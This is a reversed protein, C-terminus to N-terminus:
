NWCEKAENKMGWFGKYLIEEITSSMTHTENTERIRESQKERLIKYTEDELTITVRRKM